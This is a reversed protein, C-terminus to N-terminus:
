KFEIVLLINKVLRIKYHVTKLSHSTISITDVLIQFNFLLTYPCHAISM